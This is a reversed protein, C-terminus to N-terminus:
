ELLDEPEVTHGAVALLERVVSAVAVAISEARVGITDACTAGRSSTSKCIM